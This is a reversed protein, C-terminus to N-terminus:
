NENRQNNRFESRELVSFGAVENRISHNSKIKLPSDTLFGLPNVV